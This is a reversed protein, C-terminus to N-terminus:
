SRSPIDRFFHKERKQLLNGTKYKPQGLDVYRIEDFEMYIQDTDVFCFRSQFQVFFFRGEYM